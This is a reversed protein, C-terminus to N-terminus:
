QTLSLDSGDVATTSITNMRYRGRNVRRLCIFVAFLVDPPVTWYFDSLIFRGGHITILYLSITCLVYALVAVSAWRQIGFFSVLSIGIAALYLGGIVWFNWDTPPVALPMFVMAELGRLLLYSGIIVISLTDIVKLILERM